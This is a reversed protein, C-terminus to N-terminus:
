KLSNWCIKALDGIVKEATSEKDFGEVFISIVFPNQTFVIAADGRVYALTGTKHAISLNQPLQSPITSKDACNKLMELMEDCLAPTAIKHGYIMQLLANVERANIYNERGQKVAETDMMVRNLRTQSMGWQQLYANVSERGVKNILINTATNDSSRIMEQALERITFVKGDSMEALVGSGGTKEEHLLTHTDELSLEKKAVKGMLTMLIPIKIVSASPMKVSPRYEYIKNGNMEEVVMSVNMENPLKVLYNDVKKEDIKRNQAMVSGVITILSLTLIYTKM